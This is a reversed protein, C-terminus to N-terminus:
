IECVRNFLKQNDLRHSVVIITKDKCMEFLNTLIKRETEIDVESLGEDIILINFKRLLARMLILRQKEGGSINYTNENIVKSLDNKHFFQELHCIKKLKEIEEIDDSFLNDKINAHFLSEKQSIYSIGQRYYDFNYDQINRENIKVIGDFDDIYKMIIKILTTKGRGSKGYFMIKDGKNIKLNVNKIICNIDDYSYTLNKIDINGCAIQNDNNEEKVFFLEEVRNIASITEKTESSIDLLNKIPELFFFLITNFTILESLNLNGNSILSFGIYVIIIGSIDTVIEKLYYEKSTLFDFAKLKNLYKSNKAIFNTNIKQELNQSKVTEYSSIMETMFSNMQEKEEQLEKIKIKIREKFFIYILIYSMYIILSIIFLTKSITILFVAAVITLPLDLFFIFITKSLTTKVLELDNVRSIVEGTTRSSYYRYPLDIIRFFTENTINLDIDHKIRILTNNRLIEFLLKFIIFVIFLNTMNGKNMMHMFYYSNIISLITIVLSMLVLRKINLNIKRIIKILVKQNTKQNTKIVPIIPIIINTWIKEFEEYSITKIKSIPDAITIKKTKKNVKYVVIFHFYKGDVTTHAISPLAIKSELDELSCKLGRADFGHEKFAKIIHYASTGEQNTKTINRLKESSCNYKHYKMIMLMSAVGCDQLGSQKVFPYKM